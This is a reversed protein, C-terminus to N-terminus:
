GTYVCCVTWIKDVPYFSTKEDFKECAPLTQRDINHLKLLLDFEGKFFYGMVVAECFNLIGDGTTDGSFQLSVYSAIINARCTITVHDAGNM